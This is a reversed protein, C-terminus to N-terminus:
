RTLYDALRSLARASEPAYAPQSGYHASCGPTPSTAYQGCTGNQPTV